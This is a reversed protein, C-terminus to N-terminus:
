EALVRQLAAEMERLSFPKPIIGAFGHAQFDAMIPDNSYGSAVIVRAGPDRALIAEGTERGGMGGPVTLDVIVAAFPAGSERGQFYREIAEEGHAALDVSYGLRELMAKCVKRIYDEDDMLLIRGGGDAVALDKDAVTAPKATGPAAPLHITFTTGEGPRSAVTIHGDHNRVISHSIALGLGNGQQKTSFYPDFIRGLHEPAIGTGADRITIRVCPGGVLGGLENPALIENALAVKITGGSPMAQDANILINNIVQSIQGPDADVPWLDSPVSFESSSQSGALIFGACERVLDALSIIKRVPAGGRAFTLLQQTLATARELAQETERIRQRSLTDGQFQESLLSINGVVATLLNNFDHALGGALVGLSELKHMRFLEEELRKKESQDRFVLVVGRIDSGPDRIPAASDAIEIRSGDQRILATHNALTVINGSRLVKEVPNECIEGSLEHVIRFVETLPRGTAEENRWGTLEEAVANLMVVQGLRDTVIVGDGISRLTVALQEKEAALQEQAKRRESLDRCASLVLTEEGLSILRANVETPILRGDKTRHWTEFVAGGETRLLGLREQVLVGEEQIVLDAVAMGLFEERSFGYRQCAALNADRFRGEQGDVLFIADGSQDFLTHFRAESLRLAEETRERLLISELLSRNVRLLSFHRWLAMCVAMVVLVAGTALLVRGPTWFPTPRGYWKLYIDRYERTNVFGAVARDLEAHLAAADGRVAIARRIETLPQGVVKIRGELRTERALQLLTPRPCSFADVRGALLAFLGEAFGDFSVIDVGAVKGLLEEAVSGRVAGVTLGQRLGTITNDEERVFLSVPFTDISATFLLKEVRDPSLGMGPAVDVKGATMADIIGSWSEKFLYHVEMGADRALRDMVEVAFGAAKGTKPDRFYTPPSDLPIAATLSRAPVDGALAPLPCCVLFSFVFFLRLLPQSKLM